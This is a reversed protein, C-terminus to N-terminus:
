NGPGQESGAVAHNPMRESLGRKRNFYTARSMGTRRCWELM